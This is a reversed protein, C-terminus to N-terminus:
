PSSSNGSRHVSNCPGFAFSTHFRASAAEMNSGRDLTTSADTQSLGSFATIGVPHQRARLSEFEQGRSEYDLARDLQAVPAHKASMEPRLARRHRMCDSFMKQLDRFRAMAVPEPRAQCPGSPLTQGDPAWGPSAQSLVLISGALRDHATVVKTM